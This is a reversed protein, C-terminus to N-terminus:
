ISTAATHDIILHYLVTHYSLAVSRIMTTTSAFHFGDFTYCATASISVNNLSLITLSVPRRQDHFMHTGIPDLSKETKSVVQAMAMAM